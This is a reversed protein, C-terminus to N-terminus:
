RNRLRGVAKAPLAAVNLGAGVLVMVVYLGLTSLWVVLMAAIAVLGSLYYFGAVTMLTGYLLVLYPGWGRAHGGRIEGRVYERLDGEVAERHLTRSEVQERFRELEARLQAVEQESAPEVLSPAPLM